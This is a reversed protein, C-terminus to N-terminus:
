CRKSTPLYSLQGLRLASTHVTMHTLPSHNSSRKGSRNSALQQHTRLPYATKPYAPTPYAPKPYTNPVCTPPYAPTPPYATPVCAQNLCHSM